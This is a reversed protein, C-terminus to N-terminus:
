MLHMAHSISLMPPLQLGIHDSLAVLLIHTQKRLSAVWVIVTQLLM